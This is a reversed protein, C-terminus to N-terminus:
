SIWCTYAKSSAIPAPRKSIPTEVVCGSWAAPRLETAGAGPAAAAAVVRVLRQHPSFDGDSRDCASCNFPVAAAATVAAGMRAAAAAPKFQLAPAGFRLGRYVAPDRNSHHGYTGLRLRGRTLKLCFRSRSRSLSRSPQSSSAALNRAPSRSQPEMIIASAAALSVRIAKPFTCHCSSAITHQGALSAPEPLEM